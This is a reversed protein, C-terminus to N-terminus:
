EAFPEMAHLFCGTSMEFMSDSNIKNAYVNLMDHKKVVILCYQNRSISSILQQESVFHYKASRVAM